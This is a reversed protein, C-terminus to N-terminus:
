VRPIAMYKIELFEDLGVRGGERGLGSARIGGFPAAPNSVIGTNLGVLGVELEHGLRFARDLDPTFVYSALGWPPDNALRVV